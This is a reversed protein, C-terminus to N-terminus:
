VIPYGSRLVIPDFQSLGKPVYVQNLQNDKDPSKKRRLMDMRKETTMKLPSLFRKHKKISRKRSKKKLKSKETITNSISSIPKSTVKKKIKKGIKPTAQKNEDFIPDLHLSQSLCDISASTSTSPTKEDNQYFNKTLSRLKEIAQDIKDIQSDIKGENAKFQPYFEQEMFNEFQNQDINIEAQSQNSIFLQKKESSKDQTKEFVTSDTQTVEDMLPMTQPMTTSNNIEVNEQTQIQEEIYEEEEEEFYTIKEVHTSIKENSNTTIMSTNTEDMERSIKLTLYKKM